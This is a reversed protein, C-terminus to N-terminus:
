KLKVKQLFYHGYLSELPLENKVFELNIFNYASSVFSSRSMPEPRTLKDSYIMLEKQQYKLLEDKESDIGVFLRNEINVGFEYYYISAVTSPDALIFADEPHERAFHAIKVNDYFTFHNNPYIGFILNWLLFVLGTKLVGGNPIHFNLALYLSLVFPLMTMFEANGHSIFAFTLHFIFILILLVSLRRKWLPQYNKGPIFDRFVQRLAFFLLVVCLLLVFGTVVPNIKILFFVRGHIELFSRFLSVPTLIFNFKNISFEASGKQYDYFIFEIINQAEGFSYDKYFYFVIFYTVPVLLGPFLFYWSQRTFYLMLVTAAGLWWFFYIQHFLAALALLIGAKILSFSRGTKFFSIICSTAALAPLLPYIYTENDTAFRWFGYSLGTLLLWSNAKSVPLTLDSILIHRFMWLTAIATLGNCFQLFGILEGQWLNGFLHWLLYNFANYLLHHPRFLDTGTKVDGAYGWSDTTANNNPFAVFAISLVIFPWYNKLTDVSVRYM